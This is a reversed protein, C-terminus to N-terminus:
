VIGYLSSLFTSAVRQVKLDFGLQTSRGRCGPSGMSVMVGICGLMPRLWWM